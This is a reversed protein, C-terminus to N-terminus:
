TILQAVQFHGSVSKKWGWWREFCDSVDLLQRFNAIGDRPQGQRAFKVVSSVAYSSSVTAARGFFTPTERRDM